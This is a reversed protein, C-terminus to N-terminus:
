VPKFRSKLRELVNPLTTYEMSAPPLRHPEFPGHRRLYDAIYMCQERTLDWAPDDFVDIPETLKGNKMSFALGTIRPPGDFRTCQSYKLPVPMLPGNHSGRMWGPVLHGLAFGELVEGTAPFGSQARVVAAPDDKGIYKGAVAYLKETSIAAATGLKENKSLVRKIVYDETSGILALMDYYEEPLQMTVKKDGKIDYIEFTFGGHLKPDIVLGATNFPDAFIRCIPYNFAGPATKDATFVIFPDAPREEFEIEAVGPGMGRVNGSFADKLLDQGAGYLGRERANDAGATLAEFALKHIEEDDVGRTHTMLIETDDGANWIKLDIILGSEQGAVVKKSVIDTVIDCTRVHGGISGIDAKILSVTIKVHAVM